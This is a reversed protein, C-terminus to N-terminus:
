KYNPPDSQPSHLKFPHPHDWGDKSFDQDLFIALKGADESRRYPHSLDFGGSDIFLLYGNVLLLYDNM